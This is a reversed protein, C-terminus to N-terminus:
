GAVFTSSSRYLVRHAWQIANDAIPYNGKNDHGTTPVFSIAAEDYDLKAQESLSSATTNDITSVEKNNIALIIQDYPLLVDFKDSAALVHAIESKHKVPLDIKSGFHGM